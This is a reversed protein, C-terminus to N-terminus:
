LRQADERVQAQWRVRKARSMRRGVLRPSSPYPSMDAGTEAVIVEAVRRDVGPITDLLELAREFPGIKEEIRDSVAQIDAELEEVHALMRELLFAHHDELRGQLAKRLAPLKVRLKGKALEALAEPDAQGEILARMMERGSVGMVDTAVTALKVGADELM